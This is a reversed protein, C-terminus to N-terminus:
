PLPYRFFEPPVDNRRRSILRELAAHLLRRLGAAVDPATQPTFRSPAPIADM